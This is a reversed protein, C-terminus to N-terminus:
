ILGGERDVLSIENRSDFGYRVFDIVSPPGILIRHSLEQDAVEVNCYMM